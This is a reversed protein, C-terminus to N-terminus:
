IFGMFPTLYEVLDRALIQMVADAHDTSRGDLRKKIEKKSEVKIKGGSTEKCTPTTLEADLIDNETPPLAVEEGSAPDLMERMIWWGASRKDSFGREQSKDRHDTKEGASFGWVTEGMGQENLRHLIGTGIGISDVVAVGGRGDIIGKIKGALEMTATNPDGAFFEELTDIKCGDFCRAIVSLNGQIKGGGVDVGIGTFEGPKGDDAWEYWREKALEVWALPIVSDTGGAAFEGLVRNQYIASQVTWLRAKEEAWERGIQGAAIAEELTVHRTWWSELGPARRHIDYFRGMPEGPTSIAIAFAEFGEAGAQAFAGESADFTEDKISKAEDYIYVIRRAHAGEILTPDDSAVAFAECAPGRRISRTLLEYRNFPPRGITDWRL